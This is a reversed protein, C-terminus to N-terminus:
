GESFHHLEDTPIIGNGVSHFTMFNHELCGVLYNKSTFDEKSIFKYSGAGGNWLDAEAVGVADFLVPLLSASSQPPSRSRPPTHQTLIPYKLSEYPNNM